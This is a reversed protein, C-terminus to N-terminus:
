GQSREVAECSINDFFSKAKNYFLREEGNADENNASDSATEDKKAEKDGEAADGNESTGSNIAAGPSSGSIKTSAMQERLEEFQTNAQEFDYDKEFLRKDERQRSSSVYLMNGAGGRGLLGNGRPRRGGVGGGRSMMGGGGGGGSGGGGRGM